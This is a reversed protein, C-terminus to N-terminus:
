INDYQKKNKYFAFLSVVSVVFVTYYVSLPVPVPDGGAYSHLGSLYYNVGLYTMIVAAFSILSLFNFTFLGKFSPIFRLHLVIAYVIVSVLAWTEKPDWGWYRGWSENAWVGGLFTGITLLYLGIILSMENIYSLQKINNEIRNFNNKSKIIMLILNVFGLMAGLGLFGYAAIIVAVHITLWYSNLVPVLNTIEPDIWSLHAILLVIGALLTTAALAIKNNKSFVIGAFLTVWSIYIMSEYGNSWPAHGAIYWRLGLGFTQIVFAIYISFRVPIDIFNFSLKPFVIITILYAVYFIGIIFFFEFLHRFLAYKNYFIEAKIKNGDLSVSSGNEKQYDIIKQLAFNAKQLSDNNVLCILAKTYENYILKVRASDNIVENINNWKNNKSTKDPFINLMDNNLVSYLINVREDLKLIAKDYMNQKGAGKAYAKNVDKSIIYNGQKNFMETIAILGNKNKFQKLLEPHKVKIIPVTAWIEPYLMMSLYVQDSNLGKFTSRRMLKRLLENTLTNVPKMRGAKDQVTLESFKEAHLKNVVPIKKPEQANLAAPILILIAILLIKNAKIKNIKVKLLRFRSKKNFLSLFMGVTLLFYGIYTLITGLTDHNVSLVTGLEDNDFSSQFFRYGRYELVNNMFIKHKEIISNENDVLTIFSEYAAPSSSGPYRKLVFNDLTINFPLIIEKSGYSISIQYNDFIIQKAQGKYGVDGFIILKKNADGKNVNIKLASLGKKQSSHLSTKAHPYFKKLILSNNNWTYLNKENLQSKKNAPIISVTTDNMKNYSIKNNSIFFISDNYFDINFANILPMRGFTFKQENVIKSEGYKIIFDTKKNNKYYTFLAIPSGKDETIINEVANPIFQEVSFNFTQGDFKCIEDFKSRSLDNYKFPIQVKYLLSDNSIEINIQTKYTLIKNTTAGERIHMIGDYSIFRTIGAGIIIIIFALHFIFITLKQLKYMKYKVFIAIMNYVLFLHLINFYWANYVFHKATQNGPM